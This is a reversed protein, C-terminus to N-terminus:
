SARTARKIHLPMKFPPLKAASKTYDLPSGGQKILEDHATQIAKPEEINQFNQSNSSTSAAREFITTLQRTEFNYILSLTMKQDASIKNNVITQSDMKEWKSTDKSSNENKESTTTKEFQANFDVLADKLYQYIEPSNVGQAAEMGDDGYNHLNNEYAYFYKVLEINKSGIVYKYAPTHNGWGDYIASRFRDYGKECLLKILPLNGSVLLERARIPRIDPKHEAIILRIVDENQTKLAENFTEYLTDSDVGKHYFARDIVKVDLLTKIRWLQSKDCAEDFAHNIKKRSFKPAKQAWKLDDSSPENLAVGNFLTTKPAQPSSPSDGWYETAM